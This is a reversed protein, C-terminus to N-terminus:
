RLFTCPSTVLYSPLKSIATSKKSEKSNGAASNNSNNDGGFRLATLERKGPNGELLKDSLSKKPRGAGARAGGRPM